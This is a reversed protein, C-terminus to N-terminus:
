RRFRGGVRVARVQDQFTPVLQAHEVEFGLVERLRELEEHRGIRTVHSRVDIQHAHCVALVRLEAVKLAAHDAEVEPGGPATGALLRHLIEVREGGFFPSRRLPLTTSTGSLMSSRGSNTVLWM